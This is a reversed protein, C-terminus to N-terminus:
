KNEGEATKGGLLGLLGGFGGFFVQWARSIDEKLTDGERDNSQQRLCYDLTGGKGAKELNRSETNADYVKRELQSTRIAYLVFSVTMATAFLTLVIYFRVDRRPTSGSNRDLTPKKM